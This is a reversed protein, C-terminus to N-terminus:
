DALGGADVDRGLVAGWRRGLGFTTLLIIFPFWVYFVAREPYFLLILVLLAMVSGSVVAISTLRITNTLRPLALSLVYHAACIFLVAGIQKQGLYWYLIPATILLFVALVSTVLVVFRSVRIDSEDDLLEQPLVLRYLRELM